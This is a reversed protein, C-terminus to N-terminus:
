LYNPKREMAQFFELVVPSNKRQYAVCYVGGVPHYGLTLYENVRDQLFLRRQDSVVMYVPEVEIEKNKMKAMTIRKM